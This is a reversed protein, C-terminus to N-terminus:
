LHSIDYIVKHPLLCPHIKKQYERKYQLFFVMTILMQRICERLNINKEELFDKQLTSQFLLYIFVFIKLFVKIKIFELRLRVNKLPEM